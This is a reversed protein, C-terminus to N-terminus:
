VAFRLPQHLLRQLLQHFASGREHDGKTEGGDLPGIANEDQIFATKHFGARVTFEHVTLPEIVIEISEPQRFQGRLERGARTIEQADRYSWSAKVSWPDSLQM